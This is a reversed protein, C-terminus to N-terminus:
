TSMYSLRLYFKGVGFRGKVATAHALFQIAEHENDAVLSQLGVYLWGASKIAQYAVRQAEPARVREYAPPDGRGGLDQWVSLTTHMRCLVDEGSRHLFQAFTQLWTFDSRDSFNHSYTSLISQVRETLDDVSAAM